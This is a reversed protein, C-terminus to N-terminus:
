SFMVSFLPTIIWPAPAPSSGKIWEIMSQLSFLETTVEMSTSEAALISSNVIRFPNPLQFSERESKPFSPLKHHRSTRRIRHPSLVQKKSSFPYSSESQTDLNFSIRWITLSIVGSILCLSLLSCFRCNEPRISTTNSIPHFIVFNLCVM